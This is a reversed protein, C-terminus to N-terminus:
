PTDRDGLLLWNMDHNPDWSPNQYNLKFVKVHGDAFAANFTRTPPPLTPTGAPHVGGYLPLKEAHFASCEFFVITNAPNAFQADALGV